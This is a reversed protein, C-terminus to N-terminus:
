VLVSDPTPELAALLTDSDELRCGPEGGTAVGPDAEALEESGEGPDRGEVVLCARGDITVLIPSSPDHGRLSVKGAPDSVGELLVKGGQEVRVKADALAAGNEDVFEIVFGVGAADFETLKARKRWPRIPPAARPRTRDQRHRNSASSATSSSCSSAVIV